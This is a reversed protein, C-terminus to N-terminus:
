RRVYIILICSDYGDVNHSALIKQAVDRSLGRHFWPEALHIQSQSETLLEIVEKPLVQLREHEDNLSGNNMNAKLMVVGKAQLLRLRRQVHVGQHGERLLHPRGQRQLGHGRLAEIQQQGSLYPARRKFKGGGTLPGTRTM